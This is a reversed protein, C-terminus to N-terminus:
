KAQKLRIIRKICGRPITQADLGDEDDDSVSKAITICNKNQKRFYGVSRCPAPSEDQLVKDRQWGMKTATDDWEIELIDRNHYNVTRM